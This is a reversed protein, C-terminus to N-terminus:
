CRTMLHKNCMMKTHQATTDPSQTTKNYTNIGRAISFTREVSASACPISLAFMAWVSLRPLEDRMTQTAWYKFPVADRDRCDVRMWRGLEDRLSMGKGTRALQVSSVSLRDSPAGVRGSSRSPSEEAAAPAFLTAVANADEESRPMRPDFFAALGILGGMLLENTDAALKLTNLRGDPKELRLAAISALPWTAVVTKVEAKFTRNAHYPNYGSQKGKKGKGKTATGTGPREVTSATTAETTQQEAPQSPPPCVRITPRKQAHGAADGESARKRGAPGQANQANEDVERVKRSLTRARPTRRASLRL